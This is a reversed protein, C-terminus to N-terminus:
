RDWWVTPENKGLNIINFKYKKDFHYVHKHEHHASFYKQVQCTFYMYTHFVKAEVIRDHRDLSSRVGIVGFTKKPPSM